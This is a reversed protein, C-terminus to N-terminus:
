AAVSQCKGLVRVSRVRFDGMRVRCIWGGLRVNRAQTNRPFSQSVHLQFLDSGCAMVM